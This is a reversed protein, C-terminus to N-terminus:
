DKTMLKIKYVFYSEIHRYFNYILLLRKTILFLKRILFLYINYNSPFYLSTLPEICDGKNWLRSIQPLLLAAASHDFTIINIANCM